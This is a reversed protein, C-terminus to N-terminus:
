DQAMLDLVSEMNRQETWRVYDFPYDVGREEYTRDYRGPGYSMSVKIQLEKKYYVDRPIQMGVAGVVIVTGTRRTFKGAMTIPRNSPTSATIFTCDAGHGRTFADVAQAPDDATLVVGCDLGLKLGLEVKTSDLDIGFVQCGNAKLIQLTLLGILGLGIVVVREGIEPKGLRVGQMAISAVTTYAGDEFPVSDPVNVVLNRPVYNLEAHNAFGAGAIAVRDGVSLDSIASGVQEVIGAASYGLPMPKDM